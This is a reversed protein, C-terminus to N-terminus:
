VQKQGSRAVVLVGLFIFFIGVIRTISVTENLRPWVVAGIYVLAYSLSLLPYALSLEHQALARMWCFVSVSYCVLGGFVWTMAPILLVVEDFTPPFVLIINEERLVLMGAKMLLQAIASLLISIGIFIMGVSSGKQNM